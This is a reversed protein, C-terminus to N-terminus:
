NQTNKRSVSDERKKVEEKVLRWKSREKLEQDQEKNLYRYLEWLCLM